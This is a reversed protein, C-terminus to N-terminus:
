IQIQLIRDYAQVVKTAVQATVNVMLEAKANAIMVDHVDVTGGTMAEKMMGEPAGLVGNVNQALSGLADKFGPGEVEKPMQIKQVYGSLGTKFPQHVGDLSLRPIFDAKM